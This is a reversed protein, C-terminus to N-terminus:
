SAVESEIKNIHELWENVFAKETKTLGRNYKGRSQKELNYKDLEVTILPTDIEDKKRVFFIKSEGRCYNDVYTGVCHGLLEGEKKLDVPSNPCVVIYENNEYKLKFNETAKEAFKKQNIEDAKLILCYAARNHKLVLDQPYKDELKLDLDKYLRVYDLWTSINNHLNLLGQKERLEITLYKILKSLDYKNKRAVELVNLCTVLDIYSKQVKNCELDDFYESVKEYFLYIDKVEGNYDFFAKSVSNYSWGWSISCYKIENNSYKKLFDIKSKSLGLIEKPSTGQKNKIFYKIYGNPYMGAKYLIEIYPEELVRVMFDYLNADASHYFSHEKDTFGYKDYNFPYHSFITRLKKKYTKQIEGEIYYELKKDKCSFILKHEKITNNNEEVYKNIHKLVTEKTKYKAIIKDVKDILGKTNFAAEKITLTFDFLDGAVETFIKTSDPLYRTVYENFTSYCKNSYRGCSCADHHKEKIYFKFCKDCYVLKEKDISM